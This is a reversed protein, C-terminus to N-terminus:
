YELYKYYVEFVLYLYEFAKKKVFLDENIEFELKIRDLVEFILKINLSEDEIRDEIEKLYKEYEIEYKSEYESEDIMNYITSRNFYFKILYKELENKEVKMEEFSLIYEDHLFKYVEKMLKRGLNELDKKKITIEEM